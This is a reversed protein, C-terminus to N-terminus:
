EAQHIQWVGGWYNEAPDRADGPLRARTDPGHAVMDEILPRTNRYMREVTERGLFESALGLLYALQLERPLEEFLGETV